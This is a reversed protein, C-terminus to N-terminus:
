KTEQHLRSIHKYNHSGSYIDRATVSHHLHATCHDGGGQGACVGALYQNERSTFGAHASDVLVSQNGRFFPLPYLFSLLLARQAPHASADPSHPFTRCFVGVGFHLWLRLDGPLLSHCVRRPWKLLFAPFAAGQLSQLLFVSSCLHQSVENILWYLDQLYLYTFIDMKRPVAEEVTNDSRGSDTFYKIVTVLFVLCCIM